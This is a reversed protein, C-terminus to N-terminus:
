FPTRQTIFLMLMLLTKLDRLTCARTKEAQLSVLYFFIDEKGSMRHTQKIQLEKNKARAGRIVASLM